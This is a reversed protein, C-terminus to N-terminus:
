DDYLCQEMAVCGAYPKLCMCQREFNNPWGSLCKIFLFLINVKKDNTRIRHFVFLTVEYFPTFPHIIELSSNVHGFVKSRYHVHEYLTHRALLLVAGRAVDTGRPIVSFMM